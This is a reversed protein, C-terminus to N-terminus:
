TYIRQSETWESWRGNEGVACVSIVYYSNSVPYYLDFETEDLDVYTWDSDGKKYYAVKYYAANPVDFWEAQIRNSYKELLYVNPKDVIPRLTM